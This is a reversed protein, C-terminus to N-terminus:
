AAEEMKRILDLRIELMEGGARRCVLFEEHHATRLDTPLVTENHIVNRECWTLRLRQHHMVALEYRSHLDCAIPRYDTDTECRETM